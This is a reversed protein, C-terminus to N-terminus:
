RASAGSAKLSGNSKANTQTICQRQLEEAAEALSLDDPARQFNSRSENQQVAITKFFLVKGHMNVHLLTVEWHGPAVESQRVHFEGGKNLYGLLGGMFKVDKDLHGEIEALRNQKEDIWIRGAMAHFVVDERSSPRFDPNPRFLIEVLDGKREGYRALVADPLIKFLHDKQRGDEQQARHRKEQEDAQHLLRNIRREEQKQEETTLPQGNVSRFRALDGERTEVVVKVQKRGSINENVEYMWHSHDAAQAKLEGDVARRLLEGASINTDLPADQPFAPVCFILLAAGVLVSIGGARQGRYEGRGVRHPPEEILGTNRM